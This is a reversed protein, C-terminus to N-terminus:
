YTDTMNVDEFTNKLMGNAIALMFDRFNIKGTKKKDYIQFVNKVEGVDVDRVMIRSIGYIMDEPTINKDSDRDLFKFLDAYVNMAKNLKTKCNKASINDNVNWLDEM